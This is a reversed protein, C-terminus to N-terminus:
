QTHASLSTLRVTNKSKAQPRTEKQVILFFGFFRQPQSVCIDGYAGLWGWVGFRALNPKMVRAMLNTKCVQEARAISSCNKKEMRQRQTSKQRFTNSRGALHAETPEIASTHTITPLGASKAKGPCTWIPTSVRERNVYCCVELRM